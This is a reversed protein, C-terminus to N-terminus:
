SIIAAQNWEIDPHKNCLYIAVQHIADDNDMVTVRLQPPAQFPGKLNNRSQDLLKITSDVTM